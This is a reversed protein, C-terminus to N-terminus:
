KADVSTIYRSATDYVWSLCEHDWYGGKQTDCTWECWNMLDDFKSRCDDGDISVPEDWLNRVYYDIKRVPGIIREWCYEGKGPM